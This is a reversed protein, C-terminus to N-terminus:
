DWLTKRPQIERKESKPRSTEKFGTWEYRYGLRILILLVVIVLPVYGICHGMRIAAVCAIFLAAGLILGGAWLAQM